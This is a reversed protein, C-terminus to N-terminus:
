RALCIASSLRGFDVHRRSVLATGAAQSM